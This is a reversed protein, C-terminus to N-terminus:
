MALKQYQPCRQLNPRQSYPHPVTGTNSVRLEMQIQVPVTEPWVHAWWHYHHHRQSSMHSFPYVVNHLEQSLCFHSFIFSFSGQLCWTLSSPPPPPEPASLLNGQLRHHLSHNLLNNGQLGHLVVSSCIHVSFGMSSLWIEIYETLSYDRLAVKRLLIRCYHLIGLLILIISITHLNQVPKEMLQIKSSSLMVM